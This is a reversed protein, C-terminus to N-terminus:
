RSPVSRCLKPKFNVEAAVPQDLLKTEYRLRLWFASTTYGYVPVEEQSPEFRSAYEPSTVQEITLEGGPDELIDMYHGLPYQGQENTLVLPEQVPPASGQSFAPMVLLLAAILALLFVKTKL